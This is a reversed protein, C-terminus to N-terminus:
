VMFGYVMEGMWGMMGELEGAKGELGDVGVLMSSTDRKCLVTRSMLQIAAIYGRRLASNFSISMPYPGSVCDM